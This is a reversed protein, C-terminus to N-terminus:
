PNIELLSSKFEDLAKKIVGDVQEHFKDFAKVLLRGQTSLSSSGGEAGGRSKELLPFGLMQEIKKLDGWTRRYTLNLKTCAGMLSGTEEITRLIQWKGDGLIGTEDSTALWIKHHLLIDNFDMKTSTAM